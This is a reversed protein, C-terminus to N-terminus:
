FKLTDLRNMHKSLANVYRNLDDTYYKKKKLEEAFEKESKYNLSYGKRKFYLIQSVVASDISKYSAYGKRGEAYGFGGLSLTDKKSHLRSFVNNHEKTLKNKFNGSEHRAQAIILKINFESISDTELLTNYIRQDITLVVNEKITKKVLVDNSTKSSFILCVLLIIFTKM